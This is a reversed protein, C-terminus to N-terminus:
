VKGERAGDLAADVESFATAALDVSSPPRSARELYTGGGKGGGEWGGGLYGGGTLGRGGVGEGSSSWVSNESQVNLRSLGM